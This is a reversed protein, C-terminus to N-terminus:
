AMLCSFYASAQMTRLESPSADMKTNVSKASLVSMKGLEHKPFQCLVRITIARMSITPGLLFRWLHLHKWENFLARSFLSLHWM